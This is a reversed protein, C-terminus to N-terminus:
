IQTLLSTSTWGVVIKNSISCLIIQAKETITKKISGSINRAFL